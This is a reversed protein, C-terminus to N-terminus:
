EENGSDVDFSGTDKGKDSLVRKCFSIRIKNMKTGDRYVEGAISADEKKQQYDQDNDKAELLAVQNLAVSSIKQRIEQESMSAVANKFDEDLDEFPDKKSRGM